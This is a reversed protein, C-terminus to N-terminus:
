LAPVRKSDLWRNIASCCDDLLGTYECYIINDSIVIFLIACLFKYIYLVTAERMLLRDRSPIELCQASLVLYSMQNLKATFGNVQVTYLRAPWNSGNQLNKAPKFVISRVSRPLSSHPFETFITIPYLSFSLCSSSFPCLEYNQLILVIVVLLPYPAAKGFWM